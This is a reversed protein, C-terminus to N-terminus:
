RRPHQINSKKEKLYQYPPVISGAPFHDFSSPFDQFPTFLDAQSLHRTYRAETFLALDTLALERVLQRKDYIERQRLGVMSQCHLYLATLLFVELTLFCLFVRVKLM